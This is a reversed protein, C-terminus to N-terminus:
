HKYELIRKRLPVISEPNMQNLKYTILIENRSEKQILADFCENMKSYDKQYQEFRSTLKVQYSNNIYQCEEEDMEPKVDEGFTCPIVGKDEKYM